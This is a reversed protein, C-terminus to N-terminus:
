KPEGQQTFGAWYFPAAWQRTNMMKLQAARLAASPRLRRELLGRYLESMLDATSKDNVDWLSVLVRAAGAYMFGRTLSMLGEGRVDKGLGTKCASLVVLEAPLNLNYIEVMRLYGDRNRGEADLQSLVLGSLEPTQNDVLGHTAFHVYRYQGLEPKIAADQNADFDLAVFRESEPTLALIANAEERSFPLRQLGGREGDLGVDRIARTMEDTALAAEAAKDKAPAPATQRERALRERVEKPLRQDDAEFVPDAFVAVTKAAPKRDKLERRLVALTSASPLNVIEYNAILPVPLRPSSSIPRNTTKGGKEKDGKRGTELMPLAAFPVYQLKGDTVILLQKPQKARLEAAIPALIMRSLEAAAAPFEADAKKIRAVHEEPTEFKPFQNRATLLDYVRQSAKEIVEGKPLEYSKFSNASVTWLFSQEEGLAYELLLTDSDTVVEKQIDTVGLPQPQTLAAYRPSQQRIEARVQDYETSLASIEQSLKEAQDATHKSSLLKTRDEAKRDFRQQLLRERELLAPEIGQRLDTRAETLSDLLSRAKSREAIHFAEKAHKASPTSQRLRMLVGLQTDYAQKQMGFYGARHEPNVFSSRSTEILAVAARAHAHAEILSGKDRQLEALRVLATIEQEKLEANRSITLAQQLHDLAKAQDGLTAKLKGLNIQAEVQLQSHNIEQALVLSRSHYELAESKKGMKELTLGINANASAVGRKYSVAQALTLSQQFHELAKQLEGIDYLTLGVNNWSAAEKFKDGVSRRIQLAQTTYELDRQRDGIQRYFYGIADLTDALGLKDGTEHRLPLAQRFYSLAEQGNGTSQLTYGINHLATAQGAKDGLERWLELALTYHEIAKHNEGSDAYAGALQNLTSAQGPKDDLKRRLALSQLRMEMGREIQGRGIYVNALNNLMRAEGIEDGIERRLALSQEYMGLGKEEEGISLFIAGLNNLAIAEGTKDGIAHKLQLSEQLCEIAKTTDGLRGSTLGLDNLVGALLVQDGATRAPPLAQAFLEQAKRLNGSRFSAGGAAKLSGVEGTSHGAARYYRASEEFSKIVVPINEAKNQRSLQNGEVSLQLAKSITQDRETAPRLAEIVMLYKGAPAKPVTAMVEIQCIGTQEAVLFVEEFNTQSESFNIRMPEKGPAAVMLVIDIGRQEARMQLYQGAALKVTYRHIEGGSLGREIPRDQELM